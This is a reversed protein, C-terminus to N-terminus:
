RASKSSVLKDRWTDFSYGIQLVNSTVAQIQGITGIKGQLEDLQRMTNVWLCSILQNPLNSFPVAFLVNPAFTAALSAALVTRDSDPAASIHLISVIDNSADPYWELTLDILREEIMRDLRNRVTKASLNLETAIDALSKRSNKHLSSIVQYDIPHLLHDKSLMKPMSPLIAVTPDYLEAESKVFSVYSDLDSIDHLYAGVYLM